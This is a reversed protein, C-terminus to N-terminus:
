LIDIPPWEADEYWDLFREQEEDYAKDERCDFCLDSEWFNLLAGCLSCCESDMIWVTESM